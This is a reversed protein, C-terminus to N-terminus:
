STTSQPTILRLGDQQHSPKNAEIECPKARTRIGTLTHLKREKRDDMIHNIIAAWQACRWLYDDFDNQHDRKEAFAFVVLAMGNSLFITSFSTLYFFRSHNLQSYAINWNEHITLVFNNLVFFYLQLRKYFPLM